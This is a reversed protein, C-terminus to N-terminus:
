KRGIQNSVFLNEDSTDRVIFEVVIQTRVNTPAQGSRRLRGYLQVNKHANYIRDVCFLVDCFGFDVGVCVIDSDALFFSCTPSSHQFQRIMDARQIFDKVHTGLLMFRDKPVAAAIKTLTDFYPSVVLTKFHVPLQSMYHLVMPIKHPSLMQLLNQLSRTNDFGRQKLKLEAKVKASKVAETKAVQFKQRAEEPLDIMVQQRDFNPPQRFTLVNKYSMTAGIMKLLPNMTTRAAATLGVFFDAEVMTSIFKRVGDKHEADHIEDVVCTNFRWPSMEVHEPKVAAAVNFPMLVLAPFRFYMTSPWKSAVEVFINSFHKQLENAIHELVNNPCVYLANWGFQEVHKLVIATKGLGVDLNLIAGRTRRRRRIKALRVLVRVQFGFLRCADTSVGNRRQSYPKTRVKERLKKQRKALRRCDLLVQLVSFSLM